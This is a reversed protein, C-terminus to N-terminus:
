PGVVVERRECPSGVRLEDRKFAWKTRAVGRNLHDDEGSARRVGTGAGAPGNGASRGLLFGRSLSGRKEFIAQDVAIRSGGGVVGPVALADNAAQTLPGGIEPECEDIAFGGLQELPCNRLLLCCSRVDPPPITCPVEPM